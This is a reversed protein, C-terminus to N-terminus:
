WRHHVYRAIREQYIKNLAQMTQESLAPVADAAANSLAQARSKAGPIVVSVADSMLIWRLAFAAMTVGGPVLPKIAEVADLAVEYPV